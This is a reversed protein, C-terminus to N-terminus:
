GIRMFTVTVDIDSATGASGTKRITLVSSAGGTARLSIATNNFNEQGQLVSGNANIFATGTWFFPCRLAFNTLTGGINSLYIHGCCRPMGSFDVVDVDIPTGVGITLASRHVATVPTPVATASDVYNWGRSFQLVGIEAAGTDTAYFKPEDIVTAPDGGQDVTTVTNHKGTDGSTDSFDVHDVGFSIDLQANNNLLDQQSTLLRDNAQPISNKFVM